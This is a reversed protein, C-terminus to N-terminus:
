GKRRHFYALGDAVEKPNSVPRLFYTKIHNDAKLIGFEGTNEDYRVVDGSPRTHVHMSRTAAKTLFGDAYKEYNNADPWPREDKHDRFHKLKLNLTAFGNTLLAM